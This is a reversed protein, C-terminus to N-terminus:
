VLLSTLNEEDSVESRSVVTWKEDLLPEGMFGSGSLMVLLFYTEIVNWTGHGSHGM